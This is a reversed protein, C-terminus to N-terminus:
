STPRSMSNSPSTSAGEAGESSNKLMV